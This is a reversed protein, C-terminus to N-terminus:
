SLLAEDFGCANREIFSQHTEDDLQGIQADVEAIEKYALFYGKGAISEWMALNAFHFKELSRPPTLERLEAMFRHMQEQTASRGRKNLMIKEYASYCAKSYEEVSLAPSSPTPLKTPTGERLNGCALSTVIACVTVLVLCQAM